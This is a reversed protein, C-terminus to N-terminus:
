KASQGEAQHEPQADEGEGGAGAGAPLITWVAIQGMRGRITVDGVLSLDDTSTRMRERTAASVFLMGESDKTMSELRSATNTTDGIATYEVRQESGVNGAMVLGSNLGVGMEFSHDFGQEHLWSNFRDLRPGIMERAAAFARDAHDDQELPAGFIAMIGDGMVNNVTGEYRHVSEIMCALV